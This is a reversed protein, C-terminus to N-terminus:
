KTQSQIYSKVDTRINNNKLLQMGVLLASPQGKIYFREDTLLAEVEEPVAPQGTSAFIPFAQGLIYLDEETPNDKLLLSQAYQLYHEPEKTLTYRKVPNITGTQKVREITIPNTIFPLIDTWTVQEHNTFLTALLSDITGNFSSVLTPDQDEIKLDRLIVKHYKLTAVIDKKSLPAVKPNLAEIDRALNPYVWSRNSGRLVGHSKSTLTKTIIFEPLKIDILVRGKEKDEKPLVHIPIEHTPEDLLNAYVPSIKTLSTDMWLSLKIPDKIIEKIKYM